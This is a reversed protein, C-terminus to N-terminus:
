RSLYRAIVLDGNNAFSLGAAVIKGDQQLAMTTFQDNGDLVSAVIGNQGFSQDLPGTPALRALAGEDVANTDQGSGAIVVSGDGQLAIAFPINQYVDNQSNLFDFIPSVFSPDNTGDPFLRFAQTDFDNGSQSDRVELADLIKEAPTLMATGFHALAILRGRARQPDITGNKLFRIATNGSLAVIKGDQQLGIGTVLFAGGTKAVGSDGFTPDVTGNPNLRVVVGIQGTPFTAGGGILIKGNPLLLAVYASSNTSGDVILQETGGSGFHPDLSGNQAFRAIAMARPHSPLDQDTVGAAVIKGDPQIAMSNADNVGSNFPAAALGANGFQNDSRGNALLRVVSFGGIANATGPMDGSVLIRGNAQIKVDVAAYAAHPFLVFGGQGFTPDLSGPAAAAVSPAVIFFATVCVRMIGQKLKM